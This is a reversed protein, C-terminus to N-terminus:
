HGPQPWNQFRTLWTLPDSRSPILAGFALLDSTSGYLVFFPFSHLNRRRFIIPTKTRTKLLHGAHQPGGKVEDLAERLELIFKEGLVPYVKLYEESFRRVNQSFKPHYFIKM